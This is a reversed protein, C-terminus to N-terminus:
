RRNKPTEADVRTEYGGDGLNHSVRTAVWDGDVGRRFGSLTLPTEAALLPNGQKLTFSLTGLGRGLADLKAKAANGAETASRYAHRLTFAPRGEGFRVPTRTGTATDHWHAIV